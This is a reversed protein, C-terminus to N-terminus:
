ISQTSIKTGTITVSPQATIVFSDVSTVFCKDTYVISLYSGRNATIKTNSSSVTTLVFEGSFNTTANRDVSSNKFNVTYLKGSLGNVSEIVSTYEINLVKGTIVHGYCNLLSVLPNTAESFIVGVFKCKTLTIDANGVSCNNLICNNLNVDIFCQLFTTSTITGSGLLKCFAVVGFTCQRYFETNSMFLWCNSIECKTDNLTEVVTDFLTCGFLSYTIASSLKVKSFVMNYMTNDGSLHNNNYLVLSANTSGDGYVKNFCNLCDTSIGAGKDVKLIYYMAPHNEMIKTLPEKLINSNFESTKIEYYAVSKAGEGGGGAGGELATIRDDLSDIETKNTTTKDDLANIMTEHRNYKNTLDTISNNIATISALANDLSTNIDSIQQLIREIETTNTEVKGELTSVRNSLSELNNKLNEIATELQNLKTNVDDCCRDFDAKLQEFRSELEDIRSNITAVAEQIKTDILNTIEIKFADLKVQVENLVETKFAGLKTDVEELIEDKISDIRGELADVRKELNQLKEIWYDLNLEHFNSWPWHEYLSM